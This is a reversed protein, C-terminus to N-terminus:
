AASPMRLRVWAAPATSRWIPKPDFPMGGWTEDGKEGPKPIVSNRWLEKGTEADHGTVYCGFAAEQCTAGTIVVGDVVIPGNTNTAYLGGGRDTDWVVKGTKADLAVIHNDRTSTYLKDGWLCVSRKREGWHNFHM